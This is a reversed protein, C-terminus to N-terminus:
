RVVFAFTAKQEFYLTGESPNPMTSGLRTHERQIHFNVNGNNIVYYLEEVRGQRPKGDPSDPLPVSIGDATDVSRLVSLAYVGPSAPVVGLRARYRQNDYVPTLLRFMGGLERLQGQRAFAPLTRVAGVPNQALGMLKKFGFAITMDLDQPQVRYRQNSRIDLLSDSFNLDLWLTDGRAVTDAQPSITVPIEFAVFQFEPQLEKPECGLLLLSIVALWFGAIRM